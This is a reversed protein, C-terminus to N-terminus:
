DKPAPMGKWAVTRFRDAPVVQPETMNPGQWQFSFHPVGEGHSFEIKIPHVGKTLRTATRTDGSQRYILRSKRIWLSHWTAQKDPCKIEIFYTGEHEVHLNAQWRASVNEQTGNPHPFKGPGFDITAAAVSGVSREFKPTGFYTAHIGPITARFLYAHDSAWDRVDKSPSRFAAFTYGLFFQHAGDDNLLHNFREVNAECRSDFVQAFFGALPLLEFKRDTRLPQYLEPLQASKIQDTMTGLVRLFKTKTQDTVGAKMREMIMAAADEVKANALAEGAYFAISENQNSMLAKRLVTHGDAKDAILTEQAVKVEDLKDSGLKELSHEVLAFADRRDRVNQMEENLSRFDPHSAWKKDRQMNRILNMAERFQGNKQFEHAKALERHFDDDPTSTTTPQDAITSANQDLRQEDAKWDQKPALSQVASLDDSTADADSGEPALADLDTSWDSTPQTQDEKTPQPEEKKGCGALTISTIIAITLYHWSKM